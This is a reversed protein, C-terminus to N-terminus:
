AGTRLLTRVRDRLAAPARAIRVRARLLGLFRLETTVLRACAPCAALHDRLEVEATPALEGDMWQHAREAVRECARERPRPAAFFTRQPDLMIM